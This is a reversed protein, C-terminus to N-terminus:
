VCGSLIMKGRKIQKKQPQWIVSACTMQPFTHIALFETLSIAGICVSSFTDLPNKKKNQKTNRALSESILGLMFIIKRMGKRDAYKEVAM